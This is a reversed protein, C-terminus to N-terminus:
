SALLDDREQGEERDWVEDALSEAWETNILGEGFLYAWRSQSYTLFLHRWENQVIKAADEVVNDRPAFHGM